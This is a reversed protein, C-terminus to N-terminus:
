TVLERIKPELMGSRTWGDCKTEVDLFLIGLQTGGPAGAPGQEGAVPVPVTTTTEKECGVAPHRDLIRCWGVGSCQRKM